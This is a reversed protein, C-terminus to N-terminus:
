SFFIKSCKGYHFLQIERGSRCSHKKLECFNRYDLGNTGCVVHNNILEQALNANVRKKKKKSYYHRLRLVKAPLHVSHAKLEDLLADVNDLGVAVDCETPCVCKAYFGNEDIKCVSYNPCTKSKCLSQELQGTGYIVCCNISQIKNNVFLFQLVFFSYIFSFLHSKTIFKTQKRHFLYVFYGILKLVSGLRTYILKVLLTQRRSLPSSFLSSDYNDIQKNDVNKSLCQTRQNNNKNNNYNDLRASFIKM